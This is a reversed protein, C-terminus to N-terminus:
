LDRLLDVAATAAQEASASTDITCAGEGASPPQFADRLAPWHELRADSVVAVDGARGALRARITAEDALCFLLVLRSRHRSALRRLTDREATQGYTADLVVSRSRGLWRAAERRLAAYTKATMETTYIGANVSSNGRDTPRMGALRKRIVDSSLHVLGLRSALSRALTSKGSAPLGFTAVILPKAPSGAYSAALDFYAAAEATLREREAAPMGSEQLRLSRVKARVYARYCSYFALLELLERDGSAAVYATVFDHSLDARGYHDLDMAFFAVEAAVDGCRYRRNFELCDFFQPRGDVVCINAAHLDGHGDRIRGERVRKELLARREDLLRAVFTRIADYVAASVISGVVPRTQEFNEEWNARIAEPRGFQDIEPSREARAHFHALDRAIRRILRRDVRDQRLLEPLMSDAPLRKMWVVPEVPTGTGGVRLGGDEETIDVVGLYIDPAFRRNLRVEDDCAARRREVTSFDLFGLNLPKKVKYAYDGALVVWSIHTEILRIDPAPHRYADPALLARVHPPLDPAATVEGM